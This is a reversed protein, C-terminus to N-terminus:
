PQLEKMVNNYGPKLISLSSNQLLALKILTADSPQLDQQTFWDLFPYNSIPFLNFPIIFHTYQTSSKLIFSTMNM